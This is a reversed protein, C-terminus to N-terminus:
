DENNSEEQAIIEAASWVLWTTFETHTGDFGKRECYAAFAAANSYGCSENREGVLDEEIERQYTEFVEYIDSTYVLLAYGSDAGHIAMDSLGGEEFIYNKLLDRFTTHKRFIRKNEPKM